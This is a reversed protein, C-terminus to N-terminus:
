HNLITRYFNIITNTDVRSRRSTSYGIYLKLVKDAITLELTKEKELKKSNIKIGNISCYTCFWSLSSNGELGGSLIITKLLPYDHLIQIIDMFEIPFLSHDNASAQQRLVTKGMDTLGLKLKKLVTLRMAIAEEAESNDTPYDAITSLVEWLRNTLSCYFFDHKRKGEVTPFTGILLKTANTPISWNWPHVEESYVNNTVGSM